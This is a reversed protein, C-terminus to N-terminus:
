ANASSRVMASKAERTDSGASGGAATDPWVREALVREAARTLQIPVLRIKSTTRSSFSSSSPQSPSSPLGFFRRLAGSGEQDDDAKKDRLWVIAEM